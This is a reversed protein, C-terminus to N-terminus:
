ALLEVLLPVVIWKSIRLLFSVFCVQKSGQFTTSVVEADDSLVSKLCM